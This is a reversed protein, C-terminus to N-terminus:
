KFPFSYVKYSYAHLYVMYPKGCLNWWLSMHINQIGRSYSKLELLLTVIIEFRHHQLSAIIAKYKSQPTFLILMPKFIQVVMSAIIDSIDNNIVLFSWCIHLRIRICICEHCIIPEISLHMSSLDVNTWTITQHRGGFAIAHALTSGSTRWWIIDDFDVILYVTFLLPRYERVLGNSQKTRCM